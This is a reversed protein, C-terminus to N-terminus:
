KMRKPPAFHSPLRRTKRENLQQHHDSDNSNQDGKEQRSDLRRSFCGPPGLACVIELLQTERDVIVILGEL